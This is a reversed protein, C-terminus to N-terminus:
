WIGTMDKVQIDALRRGSHDQCIGHEKGGAARGPASETHSSPMVQFMSTWAQCMTPEHPLGSSTPLGVGPLELLHWMSMQGLQRCTDASM